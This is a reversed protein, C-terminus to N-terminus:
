EDSDSSRTSLLWLTVRLQRHELRRSLGLACPNLLHVAVPTTNIYTSNNSFLYPHFFSNFQLLICQHLTHIMSYM